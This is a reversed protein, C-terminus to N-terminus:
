HWQPRIIPFLLFLFNFFESWWDPDSTHVAINKSASHLSGSFHGFHPLFSWFKAIKLKQGLDPNLFTHFVIKPLTFGAENQVLFDVKFPYGKYTM